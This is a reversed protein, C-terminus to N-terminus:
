HFPLGMFARWEILCQPLFSSKIWFNCLIQHKFFTIKTFFSVKFNHIKHFILNQFHPNKSLNLIKAGTHAAGENAIMIMLCNVKNCRTRIEAHSLDGNWCHLTGVFKEVRRRIQGPGPTWEHSQVIELVAADRMQACLNDQPVVLSVSNLHCPLSDPFDRTWGHVGRGFLLGRLCFRLLELQDSGFHLGRSAM